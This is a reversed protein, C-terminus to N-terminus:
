AQILVSLGGLEGGDVDYRGSSLGVPPVVSGTIVVDGASLAEGCAALTGATAALVSGLEGTLEEPADTGAVVEGDHLVAFASSSPRSGVLPGLVLHRHFINGALIREVDDPTHDIDALEIALAWGDVAALAAEPSSGPGVDDRLHVAVEAELVARTWGSVEVTAGDPLLRERPLVGVLPRDTGLSALATPAGFGLKWGVLGARSPVGALLGTTGRLIRQDLDSM